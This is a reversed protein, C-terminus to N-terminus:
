LKSVIEAAVEADDRGARDVLDVGEMRRMWTLQRRAYARHAAKVADLDGGILEEFGLAARATRSAGAADARRAEDGAGADAMEEVRRDIRAALEKRDM